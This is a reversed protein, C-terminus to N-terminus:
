LDEGRSREPGNDQTVLSGLYSFQDAKEFNFSGPRFADGTVMYKTKGENVELRLTRAADLLSLFGEM